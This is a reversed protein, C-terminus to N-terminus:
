WTGGLSGHMGPAMFITLELDVTHEKENDMVRMMCQGHKLARM